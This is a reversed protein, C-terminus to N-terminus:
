RPALTPRFGLTHVPHHPSPGPHSSGRSGPPHSPWWDCWREHEVSASVACARVNQECPSQSPSPAARGQDQVPRHLSPVPRRTLAWGGGWSLALQGLQKSDALWHWGGVRKGPLDGRWNTLTARVFCLSAHCWRFSPPCPRLSSLVTGPYTRLACCPVVCAPWLPQLSPSERSVVRQWRSVAVSHALPGLPPLTSEM